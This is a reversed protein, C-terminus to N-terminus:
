ARGAWFAANLHFDGRGALLPSPEPGHQRGTRMRVLQRRRELEPSFFRTARFADFFPLADDGAYQSSLARLREMQEFVAVACWLGFEGDPAMTEFRASVPLFPETVIAASYADPALPLKALLQVAITREGAEAAVRALTFLRPTSTDAGVLGLLNGLAQRLASWRVSAPQGPDQALAYLDIAAHFRTTAADGAAGAGNAAFARFFPRGAIARTGAAAPATVAVMSTGLLGAEELQAARDGRCAFLNLQFGDANAEDFPVLLDLGPVLRYLGFGLNRLAAIAPTNVVSGHMREIMVLPSHATLTQAGGEIINREEGEADIKIFAVPAGVARAAFGDLTDVAVDEGPGGDDALRNLESAGELRLRRTGPANSLACQQLEVNAFANRAVSRRLFDATASAPEFSWIRGASGVTKAMTLTYVGYNAGIDIANMGPQLLRRVFRIEDEFWDEQELLAYTTMSAISRPVCVHFGGRTEVFLSDTM